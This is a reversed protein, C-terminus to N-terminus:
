ALRFRSVSMNTIILFWLIVIFNYDLSAAQDLRPESQM